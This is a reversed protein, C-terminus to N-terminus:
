KDSPKSDDESKDEEKPKQEWPMAPLEWTPHVKKVLDMNAKILAKEVDLREEPVGKLIKEVKDLAFAAETESEEIVGSILFYCRLASPSSINSIYKKASDDLEQYMEAGQRQYAPNGLWLSLKLSKAENICYGSLGKEVGIAKDLIAIAERMKGEKIFDYVVGMNLGFTLDSWTDYIARKPAPAGIAAAEEALLLNNLAVRNIPKSILTAIYGDTLAELHAPFYNYVYIMAGVILACASFIEAWSYKGDPLNIVSIITVFVVAEILLFLLPFAIYARLSSKEVDLPAVKTEGTLGDFSNFGIKKAGGKKTKFGLGLVVFSRVRYKGIKAGALHGLELLIANLIIGAVISIVVLLYPNIAGTSDYNVLMPRIIVIGLILALAFMVVYAMFVAFDNKKTM